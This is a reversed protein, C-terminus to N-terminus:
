AMSTTIKGVTSGIGWIGRRLCALQVIQLLCHACCFRAARCAGPFPTSTCTRARVRTRSTTRSRRFRCGTLAPGRVVGVCMIKEASFARAVASIVDTRVNKTIGESEVMRM